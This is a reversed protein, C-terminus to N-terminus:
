PLAEDDAATSGWSHSDGIWASSDGAPVGGFGEQRYDACAGRILESRCSSMSWYHNKGRRRQRVMAASRSPVVQGVHLQPKAHRRDPLGERPRNHPTWGKAPRCVSCPQTM